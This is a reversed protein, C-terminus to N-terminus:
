ESKPADPRVTLHGTFGIIRPTFRGDEFDVVNISANGSFPANNVNEIDIGLKSKPLDRVHGKSAKVKYGKGLFSKISNAKTPSEVIVLTNM